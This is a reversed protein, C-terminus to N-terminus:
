YLCSLPLLQKNFHLWYYVCINNDISNWDVVTFYCFCMYIPYSFSQIFSAMNILVNKTYFQGFGAGSVYLSSSFTLGWHWFYWTSCSGGWRDVFSRIDWTKEFLRARWNKENEEWESVCMHVFKHKWQGLWIMKFVDSKRISKGCVTLIIGWM